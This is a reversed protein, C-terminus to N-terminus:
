FYNDGRFSKKRTAEVCLARKGQPKSAPGLGPLRASGSSQSGGGGGCSDAHHGDPRQLMSPRRLFEMAKPPQGRAGALAPLAPLKDEVVAQRDGGRSRTPGAGSSRSHQRMGHPHLRSAQGLAPLHKWEAQTGGGPGPESISVKRSLNTGNSLSRPRASADNSGHRSIGTGRDREMSLRVPSGNIIATSPAIIFMDGYSRAALAGPSAAPSQPTSMAATAAAAAAATRASKLHQDMAPKGGVDATRGLLPALASGPAPRTRQPGLPPQQQQQKDKLAAWSRLDMDALHGLAVVDGGASAAHSQPMRTDAKAHSGQRETLEDLDDPPLEDLNASSTESLTRRLEPDEVSKVSIARAARRGGGGSPMAADGDSAAAALDGTASAATSAHSAARSLGLSITEDEDDAAAAAAAEGAVVASKVDEAMTLAAAPSKDSAPAVDQRSDGADEGELLADLDDDDDNDKPEIAAYGATAAAGGGSGDLAGDATSGAAEAEVASETAAAAQAESAYGEVLGNWRPQQEKIKALLSELCAAATQPAGDSSCATVLTALSNKFREVPLYDKGAESGSGSGAGDEEWAADLAARRVAPESGAGGPAARSLIDQITAHMAAYYHAKSVVGSPALWAEWEGLQATLAADNFDLQMHDQQGEDSGDTSSWEVLAASNNAQLTNCLCHCMGLMPANQLGRLLELRRLVVSELQLQSLFM